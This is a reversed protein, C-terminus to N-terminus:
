ADNKYVEEKCTCTDVIHHHSYGTVTEPKVHCYVCLLIIKEEISMLKDPLLLFPSSEAKVQDLLDSFLHALIKKDKASTRMM